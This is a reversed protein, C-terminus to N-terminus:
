VISMTNSEKEKKSNLQNSKTEEDVRSDIEQLNDEIEILTDRM